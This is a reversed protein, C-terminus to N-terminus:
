AAPRIARLPPEGIAAALEAYHRDQEARTWPRPKGPERLVPQADGFTGTPVAEALLRELPSM